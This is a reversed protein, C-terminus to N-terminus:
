GRYGMRSSLRATTALMKEVCLDKEPEFREVPGCVSIVAVAEGTAGFVPAAVSAAGTQREGASDAWGRERIMKLEKRLKRKDTQTSSTLHELSGALYEDIEADSMFALFVKSSSGAHLPYPKGISVTM